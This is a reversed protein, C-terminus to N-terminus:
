GEKKIIGLIYNEQVLYVNIAGVKANKLMSVEILAIDGESYSDDSIDESKGVITALQYPQTPKKYDDPLIFGIEEKDEDDRLPDVLLHRNKPMFNFNM